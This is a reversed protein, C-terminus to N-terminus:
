NLVSIGTPLSVLTNHFLASNIINKQYKRIPYNTPYIYTEGAAMHFGEAGQSVGQYFVDKPPTQLSFCVNIFCM